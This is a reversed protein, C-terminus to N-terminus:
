KLHIPCHRKWHLGGCDECPHPPKGFKNYYVRDDFAKNENSRATHQYEPTPSRDRNYQLSSRTGYRSPSGNRDRYRNPSSGRRWFRDPSRNYSGSACQDNWRSPSQPRERSRSYRSDENSGNGTFKSRDSSKHEDFKVQLSAVVSQTAESRKLLEKLLKHMESNDLKQGSSFMDANRYSSDFQKVGSILDELKTAKRFDSILNLTPILRQPITAKIFKLCAEESYGSSHAKKYSYILDEIYDLLRQGSDPNFKAERLKVFHRDRDETDSFRQIIKKKISDWSKGAIIAPKLECEFWAKTRDFPFAKLLLKPRQDDNIISTTAEFEALFDFVDKTADFRPVNINAISLHNFLQDVSKSIEAFSTQDM